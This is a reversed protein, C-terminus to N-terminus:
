SGEPPDTDGLDLHFPLTDIQAADGWTWTAGYLRSSPIVTLIERGLPLSFEVVVTKTSDEPVRIISGVAYM